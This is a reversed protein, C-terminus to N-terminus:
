KYKDLLKKVTDDTGGDKVGAGGQPTYPSGPTEGAIGANMISNVRYGLNTQLLKIAADFQQQNWDGSLNRQALELAHDTPSNGGMYVQGLESVMDAIQTDLAQAAAGAKGPLNKATQLAARNFV